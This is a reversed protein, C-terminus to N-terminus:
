EGVLLLHAGMIQSMLYLWGVTDCDWQPDENTSGLAKENNKNQKTKDQKQSHLLHHKHAMQTDKSCHKNTM